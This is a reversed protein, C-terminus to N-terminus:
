FDLLLNEHMFYLYGFVEAWKASSHSLFFLINSKLTEKSAQVTSILRIRWCCCLQEYHITVASTRQQPNVYEKQEQSPFVFQNDPATSTLLIPWTSNEPGSALHWPAIHITAVIRVLIGVGGGEDVGTGADLYCDRVQALGSGGQLQKLFCWSVHALVLLSHGWLKVDPIAM